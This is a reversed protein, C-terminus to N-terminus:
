DRTIRLSQRAMVDRVVSREGDPWRVEIRDVADIDGLGFHVEPPGGSGFGTGGALVTRQQRVGDAWVTVTAGVAFGNHRGPQRLEMRLWASEDCRSLYMVSPGVLDRKVVDLFGDRDLDVVVFGRGVGRDAMGWAEGVDVFSGDDGQLFVADPQEEPNYWDHGDVELHGFAVLADLDGDNDLDALEAGWPVEQQRGVDSRLGRVSAHDVWGENGGSLLLSMRGWETVLLDPVGDGDMEAVGLGAGRVAQGFGSTGDDPVLQGGRNWLLASPEGLDNVVLLEPRGDLDLDHWGAMRTWRTQVEAPLQESRDIFAGGINEYLKSPAPGGDALLDGYRGIFLDLDGDGDVDGWASCTSPGADGLGASETADTFRGDGENRLLRDPREFRTLLVDLDGDGDYDALTGGAGFSLDFPRLLSSPTVGAARGHFLQAYPEAPAVIDHFGDDDLDGVLIGSSWLYRMSSPPAASARREFPGLAAREEPAECVQVGGAEVRAAVEVPDLPATISPVLASSGDDGFRVQAPECAM